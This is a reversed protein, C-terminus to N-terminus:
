STDGTIYKGMLYREFSLDTQVTDNPNLTLHKLTDYPNPPWDAIAKPQINIDEFEVMPSDTGNENM